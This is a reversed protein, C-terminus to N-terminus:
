SQIAVDALFQDFRDRDAMAVQAGISLTALAGAACGRRIAEVMPYGEVLAVALGGAFADGAAVTDIAEVPFAPIFATMIDHNSETEVQSYLAGQAGLKIIVAKVGQEHLAFAAQTATEVSHVAFGVLQSAETENPLLLDIHPYLHAISTKPVPAPDLIVKTGAKRAALAALKVADIAVELQLLLIEAQELLPCLREVDSANLRDNAGYVGLIQNEGTEAVTIIAVGSHITSDTQIASTEVGYDRLGTILSRGWDDNGVRGVLATSIGLKAAAVAQNAGKGGPTTFFEQGMLTEGPLPLRSVRTVLDMNLSGFVVIEYPNHNASDTVADTASDTVVDTVADTASDTVADVSLDIDSNLALDIDSDTDSDINPNVAAPLVDIAM